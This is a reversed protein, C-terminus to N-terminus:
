KIKIKKLLIAKIKPIEIIKIELWRNVVMVVNIFLLKENYKKDACKEANITGSAVIM